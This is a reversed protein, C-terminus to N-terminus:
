RKRLAYMPFLESQYDNAHKVNEISFDQSFLVEIESKTQTVFFAKLAIRKTSIRVTDRLFSLKKEDTTKYKLLENVVDVASTMQKKQDRLRNRLAYLLLFQQEVTGEFDSRDLFKKIILQPDEDEVCSSCTHMRVIFRGNNKLLSYIKKIFEKQTKPEIQTLVLDGVVIDFSNPQLPMSLWDSKIWVENDSDVGMASEELVRSSGEIAKFSFDVLMYKKFGMDELLHRLLPTSGLLLVRANPKSYQKLFKRYLKIDGHSPSFPSVYLKRNYKKYDWLLQSREQHSLRTHVIGNIVSQFSLLDKNSFISFLSRLLQTM